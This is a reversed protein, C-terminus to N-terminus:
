RLGPGFLEPTRDTAAAVMGGLADALEFPLNAYTALTPSIVVSRVSTMAKVAAAATLADDVGRRGASGEVHGRASADLPVNGRGDTAVVLWARDVNIRGRRTLRLLEQAALEIGSALPTARGPPRRLSRLVRPDRVSSALYREACLPNAADAHGLDVVCVAARQIYAWQLYPAVAPIWDWGHHCTHDLILVLLRHPNWGRRYRRWDERQVALGATSPRLGRFKAAEMFTPVLALDISSRAREVGTSQGRLRRARGVGTWPSRLSTAEPLADPAEEPYEATDLAGMAMPTPADAVDVTDVDSPAIEDAHASEVPGSPAVATPGPAAPRDVGNLGLIALAQQLHDMAVEATGELIALARATRAVALIRRMGGTSAGALEDLLDAGVPPFRLDDGLLLPRPEPMGAWGRPGAEHAPLWDAPITIRLPFRDLLHHSHSGASLPHAAALWRARPRWSYSHGHREVSVADSGVLTAAARLVGLGAHALDPVVVIPPVPVDALLGPTTRLQGDELRVRSWLDDESLWSGAVVIRPATGDSASMTRALWGALIQMVEPRDTLVLLGGIRHDVAMCRLLAAVRDAIATDTRM